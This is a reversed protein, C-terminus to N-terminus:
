EDCILVDPRSLTARALAARRLEGGSLSRPRREAVEESVGLRALEALARDRATARDAGCLREATRAVQRLVPVFENFSAHADQFVYQVRALQVRSRQRLRHPLQEAGLRLAGTTHPHLGALCRALTTKGSGSRGVLALMEARHVDLSVTRLAESREG